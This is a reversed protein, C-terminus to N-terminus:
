DTKPNSQQQTIFEEDFQKDDNLRWSTTTEASGEQVSIIVYSFFPMAQKRDHESPEAPHDPHSHYIGVLDLDLEDAIREAQRYELPSIEFRRRKNEERTNEARRVVKVQRSDGDDTGYMFGCCEYPYAEEAHQHMSRLQESKIALPM